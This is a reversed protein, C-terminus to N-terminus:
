FIKSFEGYDSDEVDCEILLVRQDVFKKVLKEFSTPTPLEADFKKVCQIYIKLQSKAELLGAEITDGECVIGVDALVFVYPEDEYEKYVVAPYIYTM